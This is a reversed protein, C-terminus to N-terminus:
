GSRTLLMADGYSYFRYREAIAQAYLGLALERGVFAAVLMLLTSKPLHFNTLLRDCVHFRAGPTLFLRTSGSGARLQGTADVSSELVRVSTTGVCVVRGGRARTRAVADVTAQSLHYREAHMPHERTDEVEVAAFTGLGVHLTVSAREVGRAELRGLLEETLHLGATPAAVAGLERAFVTQYREADKAEHEAEAAGQGQHRTIYPPLPVHGAREFLAEIAAPDAAQDGASDPAHRFALVWTPGPKDPEADHPLRELPELCWGEAFAETPDGQAEGKPAQPCAGPLEISLHEGVRLKRAPNALARWVAPQGPEPGLFFLEVRGGSPRRAFLRARRVRTDNVVLSASLDAGAVLLRASERREAPEQAILERPLEYDFDSVLM